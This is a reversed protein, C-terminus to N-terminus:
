LSSGRTEKEIKFDTSITEVYVAYVVCAEFVVYVIYVFYQAVQILELKFNYVRNESTVFLVM